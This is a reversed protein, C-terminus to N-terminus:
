DKRERETKLDRSGAEHLLDKPSACVSMGQQRWSKIKRDTGPISDEHDKFAIM